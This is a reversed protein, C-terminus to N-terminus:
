QTIMLYYSLEGLLSALVYQYGGLPQSFYLLVTFRVGEMDVSQVLLVWAGLICM